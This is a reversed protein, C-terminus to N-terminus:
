RNRPSGLNSFRCSTAAMPCGTFRCMGQANRRFNRDVAGTLSRLTGSAEVAAGRLTGFGAAPAAGNGYTGNYGVFNAHNFLNFVEIRPEVRFHDSFTIPREVLPAVDYVDRGRGVNRGVVVGDVVPRDTTAGTDGSNTLGTVWNYPLGSALTAVAGM